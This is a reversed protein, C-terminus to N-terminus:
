ILIDLSCVCACQGFIHEVNLQGTSYWCQIWITFDKWTWTHVFWDTAYACLIYTAFPMDIASWCYFTATRANYLWTPCRTPLAAIKNPFPTWQMSPRTGLGQRPVLSPNFIFALGFLWHFVLSIWHFDWRHILQEM